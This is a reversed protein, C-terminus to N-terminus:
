RKSKIMLLLELNFNYNRFKAFMKRFTLDAVSKKEKIHRIEEPRLADHGEVDKQVKQNKIIKIM